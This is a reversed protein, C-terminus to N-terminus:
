GPCIPRHPRAWSTAAVVPQGMATSCAACNSNRCCRRVCSRSSGPSATAGSASSRASACCCIHVTVTNFAQVTGLGDLYIPMDKTAVLGEVVPIPLNQGRAASVGASLVTASHLRRYIVWTVLVTVVLFSAVIIAKRGTSRKPMQGNPRDFPQNTPRIQENRSVRMIEDSNTRM